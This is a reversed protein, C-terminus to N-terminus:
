AFSFYKSADEIIYGRIYVSTIQPVNSSNSAKKAKYAYTKGAEISIELNRPFDSARKTGRTESIENGNECIFYEIYANEDYAANVKLEIDGGVKPTFQTITQFEDTLTKSSDFIQKSFYTGSSSDSYETAPFREIRKTNKSWEDVYGKNAAEMDSQPSRYLELAGEMKDGDRRVSEYIGQEMKNLNDACVSPSDATYESSETDVWETKEYKTYAM